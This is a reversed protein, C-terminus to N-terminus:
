AALTGKHNKPRRIFRADPYPKNEEKRKGRQTAGRPVRFLRLRTKFFATKEDYAGRPRYHDLRFKGPRIFFV